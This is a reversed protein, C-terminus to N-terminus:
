KLPPGYSDVRGWGTGLFTAPVGRGDTREGRPLPRPHTQLVCVDLPMRVFDTKARRGPRLRNKAVGTKFRYFRRELCCHQGRSFATDNREFASIVSEAVARQVRRMPRM